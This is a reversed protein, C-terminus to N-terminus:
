GRHARRGIDIGFSGVASSLQGRGIDIDYSGVASGFQGTRIGDFFEWRRLGAVHRLGRAPRHRQPRCHRNSRLTADERVHRLENIAGM